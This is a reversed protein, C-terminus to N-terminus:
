AHIQCVARVIIADIQLQSRLPASRNKSVDTRGASSLSLSPSLLPCFRRLPRTELQSLLCRRRRRYIYPSRRSCLVHSAPLCAPLCPSHLCLPNPRVSCVAAVTKSRDYIILTRFCYRINPSNTYLDILANTSEVSFAIRLCVYVVVHTFVSKSSQM